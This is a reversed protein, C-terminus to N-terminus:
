LVTIHPLKYRITWQAVAWQWVEGAKALRRLPTTVVRVECTRLWREDPNHSPQIHESEVAATQVRLQHWISQLLTQTADDM